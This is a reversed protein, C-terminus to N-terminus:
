AAIALAPAPATPTCYASWDVMLARRKDFMDSRQYAREVESGVKHALAVEVLERPYATEDTAWTKFTARFGHVTVTVDMRQLLALLANPSLPGRRGPFVVEPHLGQMQVLITLAPATLPVRLPKGNKTKPITWVRAPLDIDSWRAGLVDGTRTATLIVFEIARATVGDQQRLRLMFAPLDAYPLATHHEVERPKVALIHELHGTWRAPNDGKRHGKATAWDLVNEIRNRLRQATTPTAHWIPNLVKLVLDTDIAAVPAAGYTKAVTALTTQWQEAHKANTWSPARDALFLGVAKEFSMTSVTAAASLTPLPRTIPRNDLPDIGARLQKRAALALDRADDVSVSHLPGLGMMRTKGSRKYRFVWSSGHQTHLYLGGGDNLWRQSPQQIQKTTLKHIGVHRAALRVQEHTLKHIRHPM